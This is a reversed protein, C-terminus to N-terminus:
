RIPALLMTGWLNQSNWADIESHSSWWIFGELQVGRDADCFEANFGYSEGPYLPRMNGGPRGALLIREEFVYLFGSNIRRVSVAVTWYKGDPASGQPAPQKNRGSTNFDCNEGWINGDTSIGFQEYGTQQQIPNGSINSKRSNSSDIYLQLTDELYAPNKQNAIDFLEHDDDEVEALVYLYTGNHVLWLRVTCDHGDDITRCVTTGPAEATGENGDGPYFTIGKGFAKIDGWENNMGDVIPVRETYPVDIRPNAWGSLCFVLYLLILGSREAPYHM